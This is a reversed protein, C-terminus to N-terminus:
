MHLADAIALTRGRVQPHFCRGSRRHRPSQRRRAAHGRDRHPPPREVRVGAACAHADSHPHAIWDRSEYGIAGGQRRPARRRPRRMPRCRLVDAGTADARHRSNGRVRRRLGRHARASAARTPGQHKARTRRNRGDREACVVVAGDGRPSRRCRTVIAISARMPASWCCRAAHRRDRRSQRRRDHELETMGPTLRRCAQGVVAGVDHDLVATARRKPPTASCRGRRAITAVLDTLRPGAHRHRDPASPRTRARRWGACCSAWQGACRGVSVGIHDVDLDLSRRTSCARCRSSTPSSAAAATPALLAGAGSERSLDIGNSQGGSLWSFNARSSLLLGALGHPPPERSAPKGGRVAERAHQQRRAGVEGPQAAPSRVADVQRAGRPAPASSSPASPRQRTTASTM